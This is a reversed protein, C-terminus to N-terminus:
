DRAGCGQTGDDVERLKFIGADREGAPPFALWGSELVEPPLEEYVERYELFDRSLRELFEKWDGPAM